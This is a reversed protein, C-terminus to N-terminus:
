TTAAREDLDGSRYLSERGSTAIGEDTYRERRADLRAYLENEERLGRTIAPERQAFVTIADRVLATVTTDHAAAYLRADRYLTDDVTVTINKM